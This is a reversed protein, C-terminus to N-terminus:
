TASRSPPFVALGAITDFDLARRTTVEDYALPSELTVDFGYRTPARTIV